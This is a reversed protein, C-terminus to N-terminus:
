KEVHAKKKCHRIAKDDQHSNSTNKEKEKNTGNGAGGDSSSSSSRELERKRVSKLHEECEVKSGTPNLLMWRVQEEIYTGVAPGRPLDLSKVIAKGDLHPRLKWCGDLNSKKSTRM